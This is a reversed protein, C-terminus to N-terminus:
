RTRCNRGCRCTRSPRCPPPLPSLPLLSPLRSAGSRHSHCRCPLSFVTSKTRARAGGAPLSLVAMLLRSTPLSSIRLLPVYELFLLRSHSPGPPLRIVPTPAPPHTFIYTHITLLFSILPFISFRAYKLKTKHTGAYRPAVPGELLVVTTGSRRAAVVWWMKNVRLM